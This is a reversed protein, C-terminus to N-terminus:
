LARVVRLQKPGSGGRDVPPHAVHIHAVLATDHLRHQSTAMLPRRVFANQEGELAKVIRAKKSPRGAM